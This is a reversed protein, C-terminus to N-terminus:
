PRPNFVRSCVITGAIVEVTTDFWPWGWPRVELRTPVLEPRMSAEVGAGTAVWIVVLM